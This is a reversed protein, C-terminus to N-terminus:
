LLPEKAPKGANRPFKKPTAREKKIVVLSRDMESDLLQFEVVKELRAGLLSIAKKGEELEEQVKGSKYSVFYGGAKVYPLCYETLVCLRSVARSVSLDFTDRYQEMRAAEEARRHITEVGTLGLEGIVANLFNLRKNLSDLLVVQIHPFMIKIPIGPFGAGTGVDIMNQIGRMDLAKVITLSDVFHKLLVEDLETIGTLNMVKNWECLLEYYHILQEKQLKSLSIGLERCGNELIAINYEM